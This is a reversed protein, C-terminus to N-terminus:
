GAILTLRRAGAGGSTLGVAPGRRALRRPNRGTDYRMPLHSDQRNADHPGTLIRAVVGGKALACFEARFPYAGRFAAFAETERRDRGALVQKVALSTNDLM